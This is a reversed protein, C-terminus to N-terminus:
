SQRTSSLRQDPTSPMLDAQSAGFTRRTVQSLPQAGQATSSSCGLHRKRRSSACRRRAAACVALAEADVRQDPEHGTALGTSLRRRQGPRCRLRMATTAVCGRAISQLGAATFALRAKTRGWRHGVCRRRPEHRTPSSSPRGRLLMLEIAEIGAM